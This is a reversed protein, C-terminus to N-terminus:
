RSEAIIVTRKKKKIQRALTKDEVLKLTPDVTAGQVFSDPMFMPDIDAGGKRKDIDGGILMLEKAKKQEETRPMGSSDGTLSGELLRRRGYEDKDVLLNSRGYPSPPPPLAKFPWIYGHELLLM